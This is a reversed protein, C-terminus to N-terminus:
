LPEFDRRIRPNEIQVQSHLGFVNMHTLQPVDYRGAVRNSQGFLRRHKVVHQLATEEHAERTPVLATPRVHQTLFVADHPCVGILRFDVLAVPVHEFIM